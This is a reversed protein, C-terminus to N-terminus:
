VESSFVFRPRRPIGHGWENTSGRQSSINLYEPQRHFNARSDYPQKWPISSQTKPFPDNYLPKPNPIPDNFLPKSPRRQPIFKRQTSQFLNTQPMILNNQPPNNRRPTMSCKIIIFITFSFFLWHFRLVIFSFYFGRIQWLILCKTYFCM